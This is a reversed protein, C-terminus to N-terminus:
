VGSKMKQLHMVFVSVQGKQSVITLVRSLAIHQSM